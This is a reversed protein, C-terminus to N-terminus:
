AWHLSMERQRIFSEQWVLLVRRTSDTKNEVFMRDNPTFYKQFVDSEVFLKVGAGCTEVFDYINMWIGGQSIHRLMYLEALRYCVDRSTNQPNIHFLFDRIFKNFQEGNETETHPAAASRITDDLLHILLHIKLRNCLSKGKLRDYPTMQNFQIEAANQPQLHNRSHGTSANTSYTHYLVDMAKLLKQVIERLSATFLTFSNRIKEMYLM